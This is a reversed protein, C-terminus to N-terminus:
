DIYEKAREFSDFVLRNGKAKIDFADYGDDVSGSYYYYLNDNIKEVYNLVSISAESILKTKNGASMEGFVDLTISIVNPNRNLLKAVPVFLTEKIRGRLDRAGGQRTDVNVNDETVFVSINRRLNLRINRDNIQYVFNKIERFAIQKRVELSLPVFPIIKDLRGLMEPRFTKMLSSRVRSLSDTLDVGQELAEQFMAHGINTTLIIYANRFTVERDYRNKLRGDDLIQLLLDIVGSYAKEIEDFLVVTYPTKEIKESIQFRFKEVDDVTQYESMDFRIMSSEQGFLGKAMAKATQTKGVGTSGVFIFSGVPRTPDNLGAVAVELSDELAELAFDQGKVEDYLRAMLDDMNVEWKANAGTTAYLRDDLLDQNMKLGQSRHWGIMEDFLKLSKRPQADAPIFRDAYDIIKDILHHNVELKPLTEKWVNVLIKHVTDHTPVPLNLTTFRQSFAENALLYKTYEEDTTAGILRIQGRAMAPKLAELGSRYGEMGIIHFEDIFVCLDRDDELLETIERMLGKLRKAFVNEGSEGMATLDIEYTVVDNRHIWAWYEVTKSKGSGPPATLIINNMLAKELNADLAMLEKDRDFAEFDESNGMVTAYRDLYEFQSETAEM